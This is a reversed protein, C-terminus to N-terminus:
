LGAERLHRVLAEVVLDRLKARIENMIGEIVDTQNREIAEALRKGVILKWALRLMSDSALRDILDTADKMRADILYGSM